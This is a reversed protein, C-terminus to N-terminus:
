SINIFILLFQLNMHDGEKKTEFFFFFPFPFPLVHSSVTLCYTYFICPMGKCGCALKRELCNHFVKLCLQRALGTELFNKTLLHFFTVYLPLLTLLISLVYKEREVYANSRMLIVIMVSVAELRVCEETNRVIIQHMAEFLSIWDVCSVSIAIDRNCPGEMCPIEANPLIIGLPTYGAYNKENRSACSLVRDLGNFDVINSGCLLGGVTVNDRLLNVPFILDFNMLVCVYGLLLLFVENCLM